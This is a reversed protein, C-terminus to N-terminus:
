DGDKAMSIPPVSVRGYITSGFQFNRTVQERNLSRIVKSTTFEERMATTANTTKGCTHLIGNQYTGDAMVDARGKRKTSRYYSATLPPPNPSTEDADSSERASLERVVEVSSAASEYEREAVRPSTKQKKKGEVSLKEMAERKATAKSADAKNQQLQPLASQRAGSGREEEAAVSERHKEKTRSCAEAAAAAREIARAEKPIKEERLSAAEQRKSIKKVGSATNYEEAETALRTGM